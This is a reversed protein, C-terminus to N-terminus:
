SCRTTYYTSPRSPASVEKAQELYKPLSYEFGPAYRRSLADAVKHSIGPAHAAVAPRYINLGIDLAMESAILTLGAGTASM